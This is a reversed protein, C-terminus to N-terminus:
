QSRDIRHNPTYQLCNLLENVQLNTQKIIDFTINPFFRLLFPVENIVCATTQRVIISMGVCSVKIFRQM